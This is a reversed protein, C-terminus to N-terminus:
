RSRGERWRIVVELGRGEVQFRETNIGLRVLADNCDAPLQVENPLVLTKRTATLPAHTLLQGLATYFAQRGSATKIEFVELLEEGAWVGLDILHTRDVRLADGVRRQTRLKLSQQVAGHYSYYDFDATRTGTRRGWSEDELESRAAPADISIGAAVRKKFQAVVGVYSWILAPLLPDRINGLRIAERQRSSTQVAELPGGHFARFKTAGVGKRGGGVKGSHLLYIEGTLPDRAFMGGARADDGREPVSVEVVIQQSGADAAFVGFTNVFRRVGHDDSPQSLAWYLENHGAAYVRYDQNGSPYGINRTGRDSLVRTLTAGLTKQAERIESTKELLLLM